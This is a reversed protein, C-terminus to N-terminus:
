ELDNDVRSNRVGSKGTWPYIDPCVQCTRMYRVGSKHWLNCVKPNNCKKPRDHYNCQFPAFSGLRSLPTPDRVWQIAQWNTIIWVEPMKNITDLFSIFGEKHHPQTFWAAHYFLGFPARNTTFHREFNKILMKYVGDSTPPNSCADGMSCRGGNLDQWMVMPVEWIGPYSKTPCPPIMCDHFVKYDLTYPWSPPRNEYVPMSSDYTFNSDYLMKFMKNGGVALFPARMGRIDELKVGGYAALIERQGAIERTWKKQSFQEGFSHSVSHSAIEHGGAYLNQVQSYDTWEHSVYFTAGIPCGNPNVRGKDFLDSYLGKNLDNVSDDFTLLVIQPTEEPTLEGPVDKGGCYCDPLLCVDKRCKAATKDVQPTPYVNEPRSPPFRFIDIFDAAKSVVTNSPKLTPRGRNPPLTGRPPSTAVPSPAPEAENPSVTYTQSGRHRVNNRTSGPTSPTNNSMPRARISPDPEASPPSDTMDTGIPLTQDAYITGNRFKKPPRSLIPKSSISPATLRYNPRLTTAVEFRNTIESNRESDTLRGRGKQEGRRYNSEEDRGTGRVTDDTKASESESRSKYQHQDNANPVRIPIPKAVEMNLQERSRTNFTERQRQDTQQVTKAQLNQLESSSAPATVTNFYERSRLHQGRSQEKEYTNATERGGERLRHSGREKSRSDFELSDTYRIPTTKEKEYDAEGRERPKIYQKRGSLTDRSNESDRSRTSTDPIRISIPKRAEESTPESSEDRSLEAERFSQDKESNGRYYSNVKISPVELKRATEERVRFTEPIRILLHKETTRENEKDSPTNFSARMGIVRLHQTTSEFQTPSKTTTQPIRQNPQVMSIAPHENEVVKQQTRTLTITEPFTPSETKRPPIAATPSQFTTTTVPRFRLQQKTVEPDKTTQEKSWQTSDRERSLTPLDRWQKPIELSSLRDSYDQASGPDTYYIEGSNHHRVTGRSRTSYDQKAIDQRLQERNSAIRANKETSYNHQQPTEYTKRAQYNQEVAQSISPVTTTAQTPSPKTSPQVVSQSIGVNNMAIVPQIYPTEPSTAIQFRSAPTSQFNINKLHDIDIEEVTLPSKRRHNGDTVMQSVEKSEEVSAEDSLYEGSKTLVDLVRTVPDLILGSQALANVQQALSGTRDIISTPKTQTDAQGRKRPTINVVNEETQTNEFRFSSGVRDTKTPTDTPLPNNALKTSLTILRREGQTSGLEKVEPFRTSPKTQVQRYLDDNNQISYTDYEQPTVSQYVNEPQTSYKTKQFANGRQVPEQQVIEVSPKKRTYIDQKNQQIYQAYDAIDKYQEAEEDYVSYYNPDTYQQQQQQQIYRSTNYGRTDYVQQQVPQVSARNYQQQAGYSIVSLKDRGGTAPVPIANSHTLGDRDSAVQGLTSPQGRYVRQQRDIELEEVAPGLEEEETNYLDAKTIQARQRGRNDVVQQLVQQQQKPQRLAEQVQRYEPRIEHRPEQRLEQRAEQQRLEQRAEQQRLEQRAEQQRLEQRAEHQRLAEQQRAEQQRLEHRALEQRLEQQRADQRLEQQRADQRLQQRSDQSIEQQQLAQQQGPACGVNRPWDCTQLEHSYMLGGTCSELLAGGFVCVYYQTCDTPHAYYGFEEPCDFDVPTQQQQSSSLERGSVFVALAIVLTAIPPLGM